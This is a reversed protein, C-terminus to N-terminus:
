VFDIILKTSSVLILAYLINYFLNEEIIKLLRYGIFIGILALLPHLDYSEVPIATYYGVFATFVVLSMVRPKMLRFYDLPSGLKNLNEDIRSTNVTVVPM